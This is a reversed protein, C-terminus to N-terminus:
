PMYIRPDSSGATPSGYVSLAPGRLNPEASVVGGLPAYFSLTEPAVLLPSAGSALSAIQAASLAAAWIAAHALLGDFYAGGSLSPVAGDTRFALSMRNLAPAVSTTNSGEEVGNVFIKRSTSSAYVAAVHTWNTTAATTSLANNESGGNRSTCYWVNLGRSYALYHCVLQNGSIQMAVLGGSGGTTTLKVWLAMTVPSANTTFSSLYLGTSSGNFSRSM